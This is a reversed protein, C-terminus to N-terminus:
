VRLLLWYFDKTFKRLIKKTGMSLFNGQNVIPLTSGFTLSDLKVVIPANFSLYKEPYRSSQGLKWLCGEIRMVPSIPTHPSTSVSHKAKNLSCATYVSSKTVLVTSHISACNLGLSLSFFSYMIYPSSLCVLTSRVYFHMQVISGIVARSRSSANLTSFTLSPTNSTPTCIASTPWKTASFVGKSSSARRRVVETYKGCWTSGISGRSSHSFRHESLGPTSRSVNEQKKSTPASPCTSELRPRTWFVMILDFALNAYSVACSIM